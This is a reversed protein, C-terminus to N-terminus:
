QCRRPDYLLRYRWEGNDLRQCLIPEPEGRDRARKNAESTRNRFTYMDHGLALIESTTAWERGRLFDLVRDLITGRKLSIATFALGLQTTM